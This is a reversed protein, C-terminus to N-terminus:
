PDHVGDPLQEVGDTAVEVGAVDADLQLDLRAPVDIRNTGDPLPVAVVHQQLDIRVRRVRQRVGTLQRPEVREVQQQDLLGRRFFVYVAVGLQGPAETRGGASRGRGVRGSTARPPQTGGARGAAAAVRSPAQWIMLM